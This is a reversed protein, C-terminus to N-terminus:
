NGPGKQWNKLNPSNSALPYSALKLSIKMVEFKLGKETKGHLLTEVIELNVRVM